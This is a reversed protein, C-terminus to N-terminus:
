DIGIEPLGTREAPTMVLRCDCNWGGCELEHSQPSPLRAWESQTLVTGEFLLCDTCHEETAGLLWVFRPEERGPPIPADLQGQTYASVATNSWLTLRSKVRKWGDGLRDSVRGVIDRVKDTIAM